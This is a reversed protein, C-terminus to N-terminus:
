FFPHSAPKPHGFWGKSLFFFSLFFALDTKGKPTASGGGLAV